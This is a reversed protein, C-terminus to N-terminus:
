RSRLVSNKYGGGLSVKFGYSKDLKGTSPLKDGLQWLALGLSIVCDDHEGEPATYRIHGSPLLEYTFSELETILEPIDPYKIKNQEILLAMNEILSKKSEGTFKVENIILGTRRLDEVITDGVGTADITVTANNFRRATAEIRAKQLNWDIQNFREFHVIEHSHRDVITLVTYDFHRALDVGMKYQRGLRPEQFQGGINERIRRFIRGEGELFEVEFEQSYAQQTMELKAQALSEKPIIGSISAPLHIVHWIAPNNLAMQYKRFFHDKGLPTGVLWCFGGNAALVPRYIEDYVTEKMAEFEDLVVGHVEQGRLRDPNDAGMIYIQSGNKLFIKLEVENQKAILVEPLYRKLMEPPDWVLRKAQNLNPCVYHFTRNPQLLAEIILKNVVLSTKGARRHVVIVKYKRPDSL